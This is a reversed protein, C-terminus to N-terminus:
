ACKRVRASMLGVAGAALELAKMTFMGAATLPQRALMRWNRRFAPRLLRAQSRAAGRHRRMYVAASKGYYFKTALTERLRLHGEDHRIFADTRGVRAGKARVREHIDWDEPGAVITEDYGGVAEFAERTFFRAAEITDDGLYCARELTKCRTWYGEGFSVEPIVVSQAGGEAARVCESVVTRELVMDSDVFLVFRGSAARAGANRQASREPGASLLQDALGGAIEGTRDTSGNDVVISEVEAGAQSRISELCAALTEASNRTPVIVSTLWQPQQGEGPAIDVV